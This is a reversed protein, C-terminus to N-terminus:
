QFFAVFFILAITIIYLLKHKISFFMAIISAVIFGIVSTRCQVLMCIVIFFICLISYIVVSSIKKKDILVFISVLAAVAWIQGASNKQTFLYLNSNFWNSISVIYSFFVYLAFIFSTWVYVFIVKKIEVFSYNNFLDVIVVMAFPILCLQLYYAKLYERNFISAIGIYIAFIFYCLLFIKSFKSLHIKGQNEILLFIFLFIWMSYMMYKILSPMKDIQTLVSLFVALYLLVNKIKVM